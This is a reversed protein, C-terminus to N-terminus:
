RGLIFAAHRLARVLTAQDPIDRLTQSGPHRQMPTYNPDVMAVVQWLKLRDKPSIVIGAAQEWHDVSPEDVLLQIRKRQLPHSNNPFLINLEISIDM